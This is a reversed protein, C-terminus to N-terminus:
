QLDGHHHAKVCERIQQLSRKIVEVDEPPVQFNNQFLSSFQKKFGIFHVSNFSDQAYIGWDGSDGFVFYDRDGMLLVEESVFEGSMIEKYSINSPFKFRLPPWDILGAQPSLNGPPNSENYEEMLIIHTDGAEKLCQQIREYYQEDYIVAGGNLIITEFDGKFIDDPQSWFNGKFISNKIPTWVRDLEAKDLWYKDLYNIVEDPIGHYEKGTFFSLFGNPFKSLLPKYDKMRSEM